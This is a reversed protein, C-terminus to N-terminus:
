QCNYVGPHVYAGGGADCIGRPHRPPPFRHILHMLHLIFGTRRVAQCWPPSDAARSRHFLPFIWWWVSAVFRRRVPVGPFLCAREPRSVDDAWLRALQRQIPGVARRGAPRCWDGRGPTYNWGAREVFLTRGTGVAFTGSLSGGHGRWQGSPNCAIRINCVHFGVVAHHFMENVWCAALWFM